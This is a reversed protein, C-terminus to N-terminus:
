PVGPGKSQQQATLRTVIERERAGDQSRHLRYYVNALEIHPELWNPDSRTVAELDKAAEDYHGSKSNWIAVEYRAMSSSPNLALAHDLYPKAEDMARRKYLISGLYLNASFDNPDQRLAERFAPEAAAQDGTNDRAMGTLTYIHPLSPKLRLAAELNARAREYDNLDLFTSGALLYAEPNQTQEALQNLKMAGERREGAQLLATGLVYEFDPNAANAAELPHLMAVADSGRGLRVECDGLLIAIQASEPRLKHLADFERSAAELDGKKYYALAINLRVANKDQIDPLAARYQAIAEDFRGSDALAAGLNVRADAMKPRLELLKQYKQIADPLDGRQQAEIASNLLQDPEAQQARLLPVGLLLLLILRRM